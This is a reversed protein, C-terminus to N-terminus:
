RLRRAQGAGAGRGAPTRALIILRDSEPTFGHGHYDGFTERPELGHRPLLGLLEDGSYLRVRERFERLDRTGPEGLTIHKEVRRGGDVLRREQVVRVGRVVGEDRPRLETRVKEANLFDLLFLGGPALVRAVEALVREDDEPDDFYGFSTFFSTVAGMSGEALPIRRMDGRVLPVAPLTELAHELLEPSLDLGVSRFGRAVLEELHRGAGCALDLVPGRSAPDGDLLAAALAVANRAEERDRHAYVELYERGFWLRYWPADGM